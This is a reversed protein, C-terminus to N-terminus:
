GLLAHWAQRGNRATSRMATAGRSDSSEILDLNLGVSSGRSLTRTIKPFLFPVPVVDITAGIQLVLVVFVAGEHLMKNRLFSFSYIRGRGCTFGM